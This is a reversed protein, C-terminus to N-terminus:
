DINTDISQQSNAPYIVKSASVDLGHLTVPGPTVPQSKKSTIEFHHHATLAPLSGRQQGGAKVWAQVAELNKEVVQYFGCERANILNELVEKIDGRAGAICARYNYCLGPLPYDLDLAQQISEEAAEFNGERYWLAPM